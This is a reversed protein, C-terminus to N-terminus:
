HKSAFYWILAIFILWPWIWGWEGSKTPPRFWPEELSVGTSKKDPLLELEHKGVKLTQAMRQTNQGAPSSLHQLMIPVQLRAAEIVLSKQATRVYNLLDQKVSVDGSSIWFFRRELNEPIKYESVVSDIHARVEELIADINADLGFRLRKRSAPGFHEWLTETLKYKVPLPMRGPLLNFLREVTQGGMKVKGAKWKPIAQEAYNRAARGYSREYDDLVPALERWSM